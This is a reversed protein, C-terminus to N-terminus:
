EISIVCTDNRPDWGAIASWAGEPRTAPYLAVGQEHVLQRQAGGLRRQREVPGHLVVEFFRREVELDARVLQRERLNRAQDRCEGADLQLRLELDFDAPREVLKADVHVHLR